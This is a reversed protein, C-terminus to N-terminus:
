EEILAGPLTLVTKTWSGEESYLSVGCPEGYKLYLRNNVNLLGIHDDSQRDKLALLRTLQDLRKAPIGVGNDEVSIELLGTKSRRVSILLVGSGKAELGHTLANEVIPQLIMKPVPTQLWEKPCLLTYTFKDPFRGQHIKVCAEAIKLEEGLTVEENGKISYRLMTSLAATMDFIERNGKVIAVGKISDLTNSLFHPNIQSQLFAYEAREKELDAQYLRTTADLLQHTLDHVRSTMDNFQRSIIEIEAYGMLDVKNNLVELNGTKLQNMYHILRSLPKLLNMMLLSYPISLVLLTLALLGFSVKKLKELEKMLNHVPVATVIKGSIEPLDFSQIAYKRGNINEVVSIGDSSTARTQIQHLMEESGKGNSYILGKNDIMFFSTGALRPYESFETQIAKIDVIAAIYGIKEGYLQNDGSSFINMGFLLKGKDVVKDPPSYGRYQVMGEGGATEMLNTTYRSRGALSIQYNSQSIVVIDLIDTNMNRAISLLGEVKQSLDYNRLKDKEILFKQVTSDYGLNMMMSSVNTYNASIRQKLLSVLEMNYQTNQNIITESSLQYVRSIIIPIIAVIILGFLLIQTRISLKKITKM